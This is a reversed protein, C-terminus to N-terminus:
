AVMLVESGNLLKLLIIESLNDDLPLLFLISYGSTPPLSRVIRRAVRRAMEAKTSIATTDATSSVLLRTLDNLGLIRVVPADADDAAVASLGSCFLASGDPIM